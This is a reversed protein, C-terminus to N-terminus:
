GNLVMDLNLAPSALTLRDIKGDNEYAAHALFLILARFLSRTTITAQGDVAVSVFELSPPNLSALHVYFAGASQHLATPKGPSVLTYRSSFPQDVNHGQVIACSTVRADMYAGFLSLILQTDTPLSDNWPRAALRTTPPSSFLSAKEAAGNTTETGVPQPGGSAWSFDAMCSGLSLSALRSVLYAQNTHLRLYPLIYPLTTQVLEPHATMAATIQEVTSTGIRLHLLALDTEFRKNMAKIGDNLPRVITNVMWMRLRQEARALESESLASHSDGRKKRGVGGGVGREGGGTGGSSTGEVSTGRSPSSSSHHSLRRRRGDIPSASGAATAAAVAAARQAALEVRFRSTDDSGSPSTGSARPSLHVGGKDDYVVDYPDNKNEAADKSMQYPHLELGDLQLMAQYFSTSQNMKEGAAGTAAAAAADSRSQALLVDVQEQTHISTLMKTSPLAAVRAQFPASSALDAILGVGTSSPSSPGSTFSTSQSRASALSITSRNAGGGGVGKGGGFEHDDIWSLDPRAPSSAGYLPRYDARRNRLGVPPSQQPTGFITKEPIPFIPSIVGTENEGGTRGGRQPTMPPTAGTVAPTSTLVTSKRS